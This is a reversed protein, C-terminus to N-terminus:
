IRGQRRQREAVMRGYAEGKYTAIMKAIRRRAIRWRVHKYLPHAVMVGFVVGALTVLFVVDDPPWWTVAEEAVPVV